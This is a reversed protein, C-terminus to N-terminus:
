AARRTAERLRAGLVRIVEIAVQPRDRIIADLERRGICVCRTEGSAVLTATRPEGTLLALEGVYEGVERTAVDREGGRVRVAGSAIVYLRDGRDGERAIVAGDPFVHETAISAIQKLDAPPLSAFISVKRLFLIRDMSSLTALTQVNHGGARIEQALERIFPDHDSLAHETVAEDAAVRDGRPEWLPILPRAIDGEAVSEVLELASARQAPDNRELAELVLEDPVRGALALAAAIARRAHDTARHRFADLLLRRRDDEHRPGGVYPLDALAADRERRAFARIVERAAPEDSSGLAELAAHRVVPDADELSARALALDYRAVVAVAARRLSTIPDAILARALVRLERPERAVLDLAAARVEMDEERLMRALAERDDLTAFANARVTPSPDATARDAVRRVIDPAIRRLARIASARVADDADGLAAALAEAHEPRAVRDLVAASVRRVGLDAATLGAVAVGVAAADQALVGLPDAEALFPQPRGARLADALAVRYAHRTRWILALTAAASVIGILSIQWPELLRDGVLLLVGALAIGAQGPVGEMFARTQDRREPPVPNLLAQYASDAIGTLWTMQAFRFAVVTTFAPRLALAVFGVLYIATFAVISNVVGVRAYLRNALFLSVLLAAVTTAGNFVGLFAALSDADSYTARVARTFPLALAFYLVSFLVLAVALLRLLESRRVIALGRGIEAIVSGGEAPADLPAPPRARFLLVVIAFAAVLSAAWVVLLNEAHLLGVLAATLLGGVVSGAIRGANFLPFLRKAQRTDCLASAVGWSIIGVLTTVVNMALWIVPYVWPVGTEVLGREFVLLGALALPIGAYLRGRDVRALLASVALTFVLTVAGLAVYMQPLLAVDFRAFFLAETAAGGMATGLSTAVMLATAALALVAEGPQVGVARAARM